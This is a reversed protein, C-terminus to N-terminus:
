KKFHGVVAPVRTKISISEDKKNSIPALWQKQVSKTEDKGEGDQGCEATDKRKMQAKEGSFGNSM